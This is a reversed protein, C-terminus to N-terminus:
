PRCKYIAFSRRGVDARKGLVLTDGGADVASNRALQLLNADIDEISRSVFGVKSLVSVTTEGKAVCHSVQGPEAVTVKESGPRVEILNSACGGLAVLLPIMANLILMRISFPM